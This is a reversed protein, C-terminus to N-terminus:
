IKWNKELQKIGLIILYPTYEENNLVELNEINNEFYLINKLMKLRIEEGKETYSHSIKLKYLKYLIFVPIAGLFYTGIILIGLVFEVIYRLTSRITDINSTRVEPIAFWNYYIKEILSEKYLDQDELDQKVLREFEFLNEIELSILNDYNNMVYEQHKMLNVPKSNKVDIYTAKIANPHLLLNRENSLAINIAVPYRPIEPVYTQPDYEIIEYFKNKKQQNIHQILLVVPKIFMIYFIYFADQAVFIVIWAKALNIINFTLHGYNMYSMLLDYIVALIIASLALVIQMNFFDKFFKVVKKM